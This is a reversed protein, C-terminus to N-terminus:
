SDHVDSCTGCATEADSEGAVEETGNVEWHISGMASHRRVQVRAPVDSSLIVLAM